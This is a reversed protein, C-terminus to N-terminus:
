FISFFSNAFYLIERAFDGLHGHPQTDLHKLASFAWTDLHMLTWLAQTGTHKLRGLARCSDKSHGFTKWAQIGELHGGLAWLFKLCINVHVFLLFYKDSVGKKARHPRTASAHPLLSNFNNATIQFLASNM